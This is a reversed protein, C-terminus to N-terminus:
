KEKEAFIYLKKLQENILEMDRTSLRLGYLPDEKKLPRKIRMKSITTIQCTNAVSGEKLHEIETLMDKTRDALSSIVAYKARMEPTAREEPTAKRYDQMMQDAERVVAVTRNVMPNYVGDRLQCTYVNPKYGKKLSFLPVVTVIPSNLKNENDVVVAFHRGGFEKGIRFGFDAVVISGRKLRPVSAPVFSDERRLFAVYDKLWYAVLKAKTLLGPNESEKWEKFLMKIKEVADNLHFEFEVPTMNKSM